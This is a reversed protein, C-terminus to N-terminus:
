ELDGQGGALHIDDVGEKVAIGNFRACLEFKIVRLGEGKLIELDLGIGHDVFIGIDIHRGGVSRDRTTGFPVIKREEFEGGLVIRYRRHQRLVMDGGDLSEHPLRRSKLFPQYFLADGNHAFGFTGVLDFIQAAIEPAAGETVEGAVIRLIKLM